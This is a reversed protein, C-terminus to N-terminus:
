TESWNMVVWKGAPSGQSVIQGDRDECCLRYEIIRDTIQGGAEIQLQAGIRAMGAITHDFSVFRYSILRKGRFLERIEAPLPKEKYKDFLYPVCNSMYGYNARKWWHLFEALAREPTGEALDSPDVDAPIGQVELERPVWDEWRKKEETHYVIDRMMEKWSKEPQKPPPELMGREAKVAWERVAFLAAWTKCAVLQNDYGLDRGHMIGHRYPVDIRETTTTGRHSNFVISLQNLGKDHAAMSDWAELRAEDAFFGIRREHLDNVLGDIQALVVPTSAHYRGEEFDLLAKEALRMRPRFAEVAVMTRLQQRVTDTNFYDALLREAGELDGAEAKDVADKAVEFNMLEYMIWGKKAFLDDFRDPIVAMEDIEGALENARELADQIGSTDVRALRLLPKLAPFVTKFFRFMKADELLSRLKPIDRISM